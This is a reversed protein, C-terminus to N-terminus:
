FTLYELSLNILINDLINLSFASLEPEIEREFLLGLKDDM